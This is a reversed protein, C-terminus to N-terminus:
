YEVGVRKQNQPLLLVLLPKLVNLKPVKKIRLTQALNQHLIRNYM